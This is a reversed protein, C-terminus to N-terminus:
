RVYPKANKLIKYIDKIQKNISKAPPPLLDPCSLDYFVQPSQSANNMYYIIKLLNAERSTFDKQVRRKGIYISHACVDLDWYFQALLRRQYHLKKSNDLEKNEIEDNYRKAYEDEIRSVDKNCTYYFFRGIDTVATGFDHGRYESLLQNYRQEWQIKRPIWIAIIIAVFSLGISIIDCVSCGSKFACELLM